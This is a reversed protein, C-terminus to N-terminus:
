IKFYVEKDFFLKKIKLNQIKFQKIDKIQSLDVEFKCSFDNYKEIFVCTDREVSAGIFEAFEKAQEDNEFWAPYETIGLKFSYKIM